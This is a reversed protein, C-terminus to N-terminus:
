ILVSEVEGYKMLSTTGFVGESAFKRTYKVRPTRKLSIVRTQYSTLSGAVIM